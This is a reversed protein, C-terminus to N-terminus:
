FNVNVGFSFTRAMPYPAPAGKVAGAQVEPDGGLYKTIIFPNQVDVYVRMNSFYRTVAEQKFTYGLTINRCRVFNKSSLRTDISAPLGLITGDYAAGPWTGSPNATSWANKIDKTAGITGSAIGKPDAWLLTNNFDYAGFQGYFFISFDFDQYKFENGWGLIIKPDYSFMKVDKYDLVGDGNRDVFKPAGPMQAKAPQWASPTEGVQLIGNTQFVYIANVPDKQGVYPQLDQNKFRQDWRYEYHTANFIMDWQFIGSAFNVTKLAFEWGNRIRSGDNEYATAIYSLQDTSRSTLLNTVKDSFVDVSGSIRNRFFGFDLGANSNRTKEWKLNPQDISTQYYPTYITAGNDFYVQDADASYQGYAATGIPRGTIGISARIKLLDLKSFNKMFSENNIKWGVSASPFGAYKNNPFFKDIGDLRYVLSVLYRDLIDFNTRAFYSRKKEYDKYSSMADRKPAAGMNYTGVADLMDSAQMGYGSDDYVYQGTGAMADLNVVKAFSKKFSLTAEMTQNQRQQGTLSGRAQYIQGWFVNSPIYMSRNANEYNNGYLLRASLMKKIIDIDLSFNAMVSSAQTHDNINLLTVPNGTTSFQTYNGNEDKVPLYSPYSLAAQLAGFGQSGSGGTQWGATSNTYNNRTYSVSTNLKVFDTLNFILNMHTNYRSMDSNKMTGVQDFYNGSFYYIMKDNGGNITVTHNDVSGHRLVHAMWDTGNGASQIQADSFAPTFGSAANPGFPAMNNTFLYRDKSFENYYTMYEHANLPKLYPMNVVMSRSGQYSINMRGAKGKKTTILIVGDAAAVGYIAASADKLVEISEIDAPNLDAIGGRKVGNLEGNGSGPELGNGPVVIGDIIILPNGRGRISLNIAGGPEASQQSVQLGAARGFLLQNVSNNASAPIDGPKVQSVSTTLNQKTTTGYGVAIVEDIGISEEALNVNITTKGSVAVEQAKMGLFSFQLTANEPVNSLSYKGESDTITGNTTGKVVVSVGPLSAGSTDTVKGGIKKQQQESGLLNQNGGNEDTIIIYRDVIKYQFNAAGLIKDLIADITQNDVKISIKKEVDLKTSNYAFKYDSMSEIQKFVSEITADKSEFSLRKSQSYTVSAYSMLGLLTFIFTLKMIRLYKQIPIFPEGYLSTRNKKM